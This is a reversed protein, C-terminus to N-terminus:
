PLSHTSSYRWEKMDEHHSLGLVAFGIDKSELVIL